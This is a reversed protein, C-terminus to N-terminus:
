SQLARASLVAQRIEDARLFRNVRITRRRGNLLHVHLADSTEEIRQIENWAAKFRGRRARFDIGDDSVVIKRRALRRERITGRAFALFVSACATLFLPSFWKRGSSVAFFWETFLVVGMLLDTRDFAHQEEHSAEQQKRPRLEKAASVLSFGISVVEVAGLLIHFLSGTTLRAIAAPVLQIIGATDQALQVKQGFHQGKRRLQIEITQM